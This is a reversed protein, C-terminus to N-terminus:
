ARRCEPTVESRVRLIQRCLESGISGGAGTVLVSKGRICSEFLTPNPPVPDRGLLDGVDVERLEDIRAKGSMIDALDPLSQVHVGLPELASLVERRRRHSASPMALLVREIRRTSVLRSLDEPSHVGIGNIESGQLAGRDDVFVVPEFEAGEILASCLRAGAEGAGYIAVRKAVPAKTAYYWAYRISMRSAGVYLLSVAWYIALTSPPVSRDLGFQECLGVAFVSLSVALVVRGIAKVGMFRVVARYLGLLSFLAVGCIVTCVVVEHYPTLAVIRDYKLILTAWFAIPLMIADAGIMILRKTPRPLKLISRAASPLLRTASPSVYKGHENWFGAVRNEIRRDEAVGVVSERSPAM